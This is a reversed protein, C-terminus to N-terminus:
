GSLSAGWALHAADSVVIYTPRRFTLLNLSIGERARELFKVWIRLYKVDSENWRATHFDNHFHKLKHYFWGLYLRAMPIVTATHSLRGLMKELNKKSINNATITTQIDATWVAQKEPPLSAVLTRTNIIWGLVLKIEQRRGLNLTKDGQLIPKRPIHELQVPLALANVSAFMGVQARQTCNNLDVTVTHGDDVFMDSVGFPRPPPLVMTPKAKAFPIGDPLREIPPLGAIEQPTALDLIEWSTDAMIDNALDTQLESMACWTAPNSTGGVTLRLWMYLSGDLQVMSRQAAVFDYQLRRYASKYDWMFILIRKDPYHHRM